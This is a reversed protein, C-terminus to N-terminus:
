QSPDITRIEIVRGFREKLDFTGSVRVSAGNFPAARERPILAVRNQDQDQLVYYDGSPGEFRIVRGSTIVAKGSFRDQDRALDALSAEVPDGGCATSLLALAATLVALAVIRMTRSMTAHRM